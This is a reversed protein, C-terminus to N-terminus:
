PNQGCCGFFERSSEGLFSGYAVHLKELEESSAKHASGLKELWGRSYRLTKCANLNFDWKWNKFSFTILALDLGDLSTGSMLGLVLYEKGSNM